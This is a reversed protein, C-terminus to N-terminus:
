LHSEDFLHSNTSLSVIFYLKHTLTYPVEDIKSHGSLVALDLKAGEGKGGPFMEEFLTFMEEKDALTKQQFFRRASSSTETSRSEWEKLKIKFGNLLQGLRYDSRLDTIGFFLDVVEKRLKTVAVSFQGDDKYRDGPSEFATATNALDCRGDLLKGLPVCLELLKSYTSQFGYKLLTQSGRIAAMGLRNLM